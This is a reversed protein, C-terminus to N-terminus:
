LALSEQREKQPLSTSVENKHRLTEQLIKATTLIVTPGTEPFNGLGAQNIREVFHGYEALNEAVEEIDEGVFKNASPTSQPNSVMVCIKGEEGWSIQTSIGSYESIYTQKPCTRQAMKEQVAGPYIEMINKENSCFIGVVIKGSEDLIVRDFNEIQGKTEATRHGNFILSSKFIGDRSDCILARIEEYTVLM